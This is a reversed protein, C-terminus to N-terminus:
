SFTSLILFSLLVSPIFLLLSLYNVSNPLRFYSLRIRSPFSFPFLSAATLFFCLPFILLQYPALLLFFSGIPLLLSLYILLHHFFLIPFRFLLSLSYPDIYNFAISVFPLCLFVLLFALSLFTAALFSAYIMLSWLCSSHSYLYYPFSLDALFLFPLSYPLRVRHLLTSSLLPTPLSFLFHVLFFSPPLFFSFYVLCTSSISSSIPFTYLPFRFASSLIHIPFM